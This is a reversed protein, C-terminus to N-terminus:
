VLDEKENYSELIKMSFEDIKPKRIREIDFLGDSDLMTKDDVYMPAMAWITPHKESIKTPILELNSDCIDIYSIEKHEGYYENIIKEANEVSDAVGVVIQEKDDLDKEHIVLLMKM